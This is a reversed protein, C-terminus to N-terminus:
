EGRYGHEGILPVFVCGGLDETRYEGGSRTVRVLDQYMFGGVPVLLVGGGALQEKLPAPVGPAAAAVSIRDFPAREALGKTGDGELVEVAEAYGAAKLNRRAMEALSPIREMSYVKGGPRALEAMVAAHYGSGGGVELVKHGPRIDLAEVMIAVMHPASITQGEGIQLPSDVYGQGRMGEPLFLHRPVALMAAAVRESHVYGSERLRRVMKGRAEVPDM